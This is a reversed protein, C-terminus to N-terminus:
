SKNLIMIKFINNVTRKVGYFLSALGLLVIIWGPLWFWISNLIPSYSGIGGLMMGM